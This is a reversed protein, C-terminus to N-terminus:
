FLEIDQSQMERGLFVVEDGRQSGLRAHVEADPISRAIAQAFTYLYESAVVTIPTYLQNCSRDVNVLFM